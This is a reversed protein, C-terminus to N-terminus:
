YSPASAAGCSTRVRAAHPSSPFERLFRDAADRGEVVRGLACLAGIRAADREEGLAGAPYRRAYEDLIVLADSANGSQLARHAEGILLVEAEVDSATSTAHARTAPPPTAASTVPKASPTSLELTTRATTPIAVPQALEARPNERAAPAAPTAPASGPASISRVDVHASSRVYLTTGAGAASVLALSLVAKAAIGVATTAGAIGGGAGVAAGSAGGAALAATKASTASLGLGAVGTVLSAAIAARVRAQDERTPEDGDHAAELLAKARPGLESM